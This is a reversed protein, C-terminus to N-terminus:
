PPFEWNVCGVLGSWLAGIPANLIPPGLNISGRGCDWVGVSGSFM